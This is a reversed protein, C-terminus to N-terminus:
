INESISKSDLNVVVQNGTEMNKIICTNNNIEDEGIIGIYRANQKDAYKLQSKFSKNSIDYNVKYGLNRLEYAINFIKGYAKENMIAFCIDIDSNLNDYLNYEKILLQIRDMGLGFGVAPTSPGGLIEVLGDYRGGGGVALDLDKSIYEFVTKNYYDLGRVINKDVVYNINAMDLANKLNEFDEKCEDCINDTIM